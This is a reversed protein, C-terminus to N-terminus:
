LKKEKQQCLGELSKKKKLLIVEPCQFLFLTFVRVDKNSIDLSILLTVLNIRKRYFCLLTEVSNIVVVSLEWVEDTRRILATTLHVYIRLVPPGTGIAARDLAQTQPRESAQIAPEFWAPPMSTQRNHTNHTTLYLDRRLASWEDLPTRGVTTHRLAITFGRHHTPGPDSLPQQM